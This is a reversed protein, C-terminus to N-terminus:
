RRNADYIGMTNWNHQIRDGEDVPDPIQVLLNPETTMLSQIRAYATPTLQNICMQLGIRALPITRLFYVVTADPLIPNGNPTFELHNVGIEDVWWNENSM